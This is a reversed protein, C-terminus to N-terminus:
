GLNEHVHDRSAIFREVPDGIMQWPWETVVGDLLAFAHWAADFEEALELAMAFTAVRAYLGLAEAGVDVNTSGNLIVSGGDNLM